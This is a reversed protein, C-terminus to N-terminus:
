PVLEMDMSQTCRCLKETKMINHRCLGNNLRDTQGKIM